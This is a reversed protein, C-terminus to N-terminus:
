DAEMAVAEEAAEEEEEKGMEEVVRCNGGEEVKVLRIGLRPNTQIV